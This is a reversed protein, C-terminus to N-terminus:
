RLRQRGSRQAVGGLRDGPSFMRHKDQVDTQSLEAYRRTMTLDSHGLIKQLSFVDGGARLYSVAFTHRFTHPSCRLGQVGAKKCRQVVMEALRFRTMPDGYCTVFFADAELEGRRALYQTLARKTAQGFPVSREKDGKGLVLLTQDGWSIDHVTLGCLESARLGCDFLVMLIATDRVGAFDKGCVKLISQIQEKSFTEIVKKRSRLKDVGEVPNSELFGDKILYNFFSNLATVSHNATTVSHQNSESSIFDRVIPATIDKPAAGPHKADTYRKFAGLRYQYYLITNPSLNRARCYNFFGTIACELDLAPSIYKDIRVVQSRAM